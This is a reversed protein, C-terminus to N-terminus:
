SLREINKLIESVAFPDGTTKTLAEIPVNRYRSRLVHVLQGNNLEPVLIHDFNEVIHGLDRPLPHLHRLHCASVRLGKKQGRIVSERIAAFTSGWGVVLLRGKRKGCLATPPIDRAASHIKEQRLRTMLAHNPGDHSVEGSGYTKEVGSACYQLGPTGPLAWPRASSGKRLAYPLFNKKSHAHVVRITPLKKEDPIKWVETASALFADSLVYVPTMYKIALSVAEYATDFCDSPSAPALVIVPSDGNRGFLAQLLDSQENKTPMGTSPGGRQVDLIVFPLEASVGLNAMESLLCLGPGSTATAGIAGGFSAGLAAGGAAIEDETQFTFAGFRTMKAMEHLVSNAPTIPYGTFFIRKGAKIGAAVLGLALAENGSLLRYAGKKPHPRFDPNSREPRARDFGARLAKENAKLFVPKAAFKKRVYERAHATELGFTKLLFGLIFFNKCREAETKKLSSRNLIECVLSSFPVADNKFLAIQKRFSPRTWAAKMFGEPSFDDENLLLTGEKKLVSIHKKLAAPNLAVLLDAADGPAFVPDAAVRVQYSSVAAATGQAGRIEPPFDPRTVVRYGARAFSGALLEGLLQIGDGSDGCIRIVTEKITKPSTKM